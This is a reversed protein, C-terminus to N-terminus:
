NKRSYYMAAFTGRVGGDVPSREFYSFVVFVDM